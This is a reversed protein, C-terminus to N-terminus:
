GEMINMPIQGYHWKQFCTRPVEEHIFDAIECISIKGDDNGHTQYCYAADSNLAQLLVLTFPGYCETQILPESAPPVSNKKKRYPIDNKISSCIGDGILDYM